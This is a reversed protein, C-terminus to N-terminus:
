EGRAPRAPGHHHRRFRLRNRLRGSGPLGLLLGQRRRLEAGRGRRRALLLSGLEWGVVLVLIAVLVGNVIMANTVVDLTPEIPTKGILIFFTIAAASMALVVAVYGGARVLRSPAISSQTEGSTEVAAPTIASSEVAMLRDGARKSRIRQKM